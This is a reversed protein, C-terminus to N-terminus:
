DAFRGAVAESEELRRVTNPVPLSPCPPFPVLVFKYKILRYIAKAADLSEISLGPEYGSPRIKGTKKDQFLRFYCSFARRHKTSKNWKVAIRSIESPTDYAVILSGAKLYKLFVKRRFTKLTGFEFASGKVFRDLVRLEEPHGDRHFLGIEKAIYKNDELEACIYAGFVLDQKEDATTSCRFILAHEPRKSHQGMGQETHSEVPITHGRFYLDLRDAM